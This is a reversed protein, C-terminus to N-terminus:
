YNDERDWGKTTLRYEPTRRAHSTIDRMHLYRGTPHLLQRKVAWMILTGWANHHHPAIGLETLRQRIDEGTVLAGSPLDAIAHLGDLMFTGANGGVLDMGEDRASKSGFLDFQDSDDDSM